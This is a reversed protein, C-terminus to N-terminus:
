VGTATPWVEKARQFLWDCICEFGYVIVHHKELKRLFNHYRRSSKRIGPDVFSRTLGADDCAKQGFSNQLVSTSLFNEVVEAGKPGLLSELPQPAVGVAPLSLLPEDLPVFSTAEGRYDIGGGVDAFAAAATLSPDFSSAMRSAQDFLFSQSSVHCPLRTRGVSADDGVFLDNIVKSARSALELSLPSMPGELGPAAQPAALPLVPARCM